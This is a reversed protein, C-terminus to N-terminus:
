FGEIGLNRSANVSAIFNRNDSRTMDVYDSVVGYDAEGGSHAVGVLELQGSRTQVAPGGSDGFCSGARNEPGLIGRSGGTSSQPTVLEIYDSVDYVMNTGTRKVGSGTRSNLDNCGFGILRLIDGRRVSDGLHAVQGQSEDAVNYNFYLISIDNPDDVIGPGYNVRGSTTYTGFSSIITYTGSRQTCHAATLVARASIFTGSCLGAGNPLIVKVVAPYESTVLAYQGNPTPLFDTNHKQCGIIVWGLAMFAGVRSIRLVYLM